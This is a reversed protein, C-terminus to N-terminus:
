KGWFNINKNLASANIERRTLTSKIEIDIEGAINLKFIFGEEWLEFCAEFLEIIGKERIIRAPFLVQM